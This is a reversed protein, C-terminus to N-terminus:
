RPRAHSVLRELADPGVHDIELTKEPRTQGAVVRVDRHKLGLADAILRCIAANAKGDEPAAAVRVKLRSGLMGAIEDRQAGPVAKITVRAQV